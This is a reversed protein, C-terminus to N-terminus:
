FSAALTFLAILVVLVIVAHEVLTEAVSFPREDFEKSHVAQLGCESLMENNLAPKYFFAKVFPVFGNQFNGVLLYFLALIRAPIWEMLDTAQHAQESVSDIDRCLTILRYILMLVPGAVFYWFVISFLLRNVLALYNGVATSKPLESDSVPYFANQPGLSYLFLLISFILCFFGLFINCLLYYIFCTALVLPLILVFMMIWPNMKARDSGEEQITQEQMAKGPSEKLFFHNIWSYYNKFWHFRQCSLSQILYRESLLGLVIVLLKM